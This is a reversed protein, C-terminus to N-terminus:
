KLVLHGRAILGVGKGCSKVFDQACAGPCDRRSMDVEFVFRHPQLGVRTAAQSPHAFLARAPPPRSELLPGTAV